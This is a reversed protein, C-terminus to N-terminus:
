KKERKLTILGGKVGKSVFEKPRREGPEVTFIKLEDKDVLYIGMGKMGKKPGDSPVM